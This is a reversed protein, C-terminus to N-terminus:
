QYIGLRMLHCPLHFESVHGAVYKGIHQAVHGGRIASEIGCFVRVTFAYFAEEINPCWLLHFFMQPCLCTIEEAAEISDSLLSVKFFASANWINTYRELAKCFPLAHVRCFELCYQLLGPLYEEIKALLPHM